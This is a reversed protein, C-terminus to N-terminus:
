AHLRHKVLLHALQGWFKQEATDLISNHRINEPQTSSPFKQDRPQAAKLQADATRLQAPYSISIAEGKAQLRHSLDEQDQRGPTTPPPSNTTADTGCVQQKKWWDKTVKGLYKNTRKKKKLSYLRLVITLSKLHNNFFFNGWNHNNGWSPM